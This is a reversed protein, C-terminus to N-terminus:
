VAVYLATIFEMKLACFNPIKGNIKQNQSYINKEMDCALIEVDNEDLLLREEHGKRINEEIRSDREKEVPTM